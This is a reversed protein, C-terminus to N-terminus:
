PYTGLHYSVKVTEWGVRGVLTAGKFSPYAGEDVDCHNEQSSFDMARNYKFRDKSLRPLVRGQRLSTAM